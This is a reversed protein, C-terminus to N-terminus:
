AIATARTRASNTRSWLVTQLILLIPAHRLLAVLLTHLPGGEIGVLLPLLMIYVFLRGSSRDKLLVERVFRYVAGLLLFGALVAFAGGAFYLFTIPGMGSSTVLDEPRGLVAQTYWGGVTEEPKGPWFFRPIFALAPFLMFGQVFDPDHEFLGVERKYVLGEAGIGTLSLRMLIASLTTTLFDDEATGYEGTFRFLVTALYLVDSADFYPDTFRAVRFPEIILYALLLAGAAVSLLPLPLKRRAVVYCAVVYLLPAVVQEKFGSLFGFMIEIALLPAIWRVLSARDDTQFFAALSVAVLVALGMDGLFTMLYLYEILDRSRDEEQSYGFVGLRILVLRALVSLLFLSICWPVSLSFEERFLRRPIAKELRAALMTPVSLNYGRWMVFCAGAALVTLETMASFDGFQEIFEPAALYVVNSVGYYIGFLVATTLVCPNILWHQDKVRHRLIEATSLILLGALAMGFMEEKSADRGAVVVTAFLTLSAAYFCHPIYALLV